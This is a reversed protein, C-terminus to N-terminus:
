VIMVLFYSNFVWTWRMFDEIYVGRERERECTVSSNLYYILSFPHIISFFPPCWLCQYDLRPALVQVRTPDYMKLRRSPKLFKLGALGRDRMEVGTRSQIWSAIACLRGRWRWGCLRRSWTQWWGLRRRDDQRDQARRWRWQWWHWRRSRSRDKPLIKVRKSIKIETSKESIRFMKMQSKTPSPSHKLSTIHVLMHLSFSDFTLLTDVVSM